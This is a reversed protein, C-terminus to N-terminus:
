VFFHRVGRHVGRNFVLGKVRVTLVEETHGCQKPIKVGLFFMRPSGGDCSHTQMPWHHKRQQPPADCAEGAACSGSDDGISEPRGKNLTTADTAGLFILFPM